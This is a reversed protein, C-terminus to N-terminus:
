LHYVFFLDIYLPKNMKSAKVSLARNRDTLIHFKACSTEELANKTIRLLDYM